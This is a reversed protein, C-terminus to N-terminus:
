DFSISVKLAGDTREHALVMAEEIREIPLTHSVVKSVDIEGRAILNLATRFSAQDVEQQAGYTSGARLKKRFFMGFDIPVPENSDPLGFWLMSGGVRVLETSLLLADRRGVAEILFDAGRGGTEERIAERVDTVSSDIVVDAGMARAVELRTAVPDVTIVKDAGMRKMMYTHFQGASGSGLVVATRGTVDIPFQRLAFIVTGLQQGMLLEAPTADCEPLKLCHKAPIAQIESFCQAVSMDPACLVTDGEGFDPHRSEIVRGVGEHGPYGPHATGPALGGVGDMVIHLDSGCIIALESRVVLDGEGPPLEPQDMCVVRGLEVFTGSRMAGDQGPGGTAV